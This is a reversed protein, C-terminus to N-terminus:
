SKDSFGCTILQRMKYVDLHPEVILKHYLTAMDDIPTKCKNEIWWGVLSLAGSAAQRARLDQPILPDDKFTLRYFDALTQELKLRARAAGASFLLTRYLSLHKSVHEFILQGQADCFMIVQSIDEQIIVRVRDVLLDDLSDYHRYFTMYGVDATETVDRVSINQLEHTKLLEILADGMLRRSRRVRRDEINTM